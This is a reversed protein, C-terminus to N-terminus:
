WVKSDITDITHYKVAMKSSKHSSYQEEHPAPNESPLPSSSYINFGEDMMSQPEGSVQEYLASLSMSQVPTRTPTLPVEPTVDPVDPTKFPKGDLLLHQTTENDKQM